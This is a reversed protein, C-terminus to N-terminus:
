KATESMDVEETGSFHDTEDAVRGVDTTASGRESIHCRSASRRGTDGTSLSDRTNSHDCLCRGGSKAKALPRPTGRTDTRRDTHKSRRERWQSHEELRLFFTFATNMSLEHRKSVSHAAMATHHSAVWMNSKCASLPVHRSYRSPLDTKRNM